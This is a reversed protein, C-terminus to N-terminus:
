KIAKFLNKPLQYAMSGDGFQIETYKSDTEDLVEVELIDGKKFSENEINAEDESIMHTTVDVSFDELVELKLFM